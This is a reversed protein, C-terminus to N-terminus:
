DNNNEAPTQNVEDFSQLLFDIRAESNVSSKSSQERYGLNTTSEKNANNVGGGSNNSFNLSGATSFNLSGANSFNLSGANTKNAKCNSGSQSSDLNLKNLDGKLSDLSLKPQLELYTHDLSPM